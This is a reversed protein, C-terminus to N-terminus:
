LKPSFGGVRVKGSDRVDAPIPRVPPLKPSFGGVKVKGADQTNADNTRVVARTVKQENQM